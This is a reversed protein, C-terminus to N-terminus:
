QRPRIETLARLRCKGMRERLKFGIKGTEDTIGEDIHRISYPVGAQPRKEGTNPCTTYFFVSGRHRRDPTRLQTKQNPAMKIPKPPEVYNSPGSSRPPEPLESAFDNTTISYSPPEPRPNRDKFRDNNNM